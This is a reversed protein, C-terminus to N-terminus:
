QVSTKEFWNEFEIQTRMEEEIQQEQNTEKESDIVIEEKNNETIIKAEIGLRKEIREQEIM